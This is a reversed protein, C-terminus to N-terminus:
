SSFQHRWARLMRIAYRDADSYLLKTLKKVRFSKNLKSSRHWAQWLHRMEHAFCVVLAEVRSYVWGIRLYGSGKPPDQLYPFMSRRCVFVQMVPRKPPRFTLSGKLHDARKRRVLVDFNWNISGPHVFRLINRVTKDSVDSLNKLKM